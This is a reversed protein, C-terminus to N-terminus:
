FELVPVEVGFYGGGVRCSSWSADSIILQNISSWAKKKKRDCSEAKRGGGEGRDRWCTTEREWDEQTDGTSSVEPPPPLSHALFSGFWVVALFGQGRYDNLVKQSVYEFVMPPREPVVYGRRTRKPPSKLKERPWKRIGIIEVILYEIRQSAAALLGLFFIYSASHCVFKM